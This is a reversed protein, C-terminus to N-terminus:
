VVLSEIFKVQADSKAGIHEPVNIEEDTLDGDVQRILARYRSRDGDRQRAYAEQMGELLLRGELRIASQESTADTFGDWAGGAAAAEAVIDAREDAETHTYIFEPSQM